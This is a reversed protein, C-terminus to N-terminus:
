THAAPRPCVQALAAIFQDRQVPKALYAAAGLAKALEQARVVTCVIVPVGRTEPNQHLHTLIQWGDSDPLMIDLVIADPRTARIVDILDSPDPVHQINYSTGQTYRRYVYYLDQNDEVLLVTARQVAPLRLECYAQTENVRWLRQGGQRELMEDVLYDTPEQTARPPTLALAIAAEAESSRHVAITAHAPVPEGAVATMRDFTVLIAQELLTSPGAALLHNPADQIDLIVKRAQALPAIVQRVRALVDSLETVAGPTEDMVTDIERRVEAKWPQAGPDEAEHLRSSLWAIAEKQQRSLHRVSIGMDEATRALTWGDVFRRHLIRYYRRPPADEPCAADPALDSIMRVLRRRMEDQTSIGLVRQLAPEPEYAPDYLNNLAESLSDMVTRYDDMDQLLGGRTWALDNHSRWAESLSFALTASATATPDHLIGCALQSTCWTLM